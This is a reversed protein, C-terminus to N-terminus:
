ADSARHSRPERSRLIGGLAVALSFGSLIMLAPLTGTRCPMLAGPCMGILATPYLAGVVSLAAQSLWTGRRVGRTGSFLLVLGGFMMALGVGIGARWSYWCAMHDGGSHGASETAMAKPGAVTTGMAELGAPAPGMAEHGAPAMDMAESAVPTTGM